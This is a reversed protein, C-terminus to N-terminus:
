IHLLIDYHESNQSFITWLIDKFLDFKRFSQVGSMLIGVFDSCTCSSPYFQDDKLITLVKIFSKTCCWMCFLSIACHVVIKHLTHQCIPTLRWVILLQPLFPVQTVNSAIFRSDSSYASVHNNISIHYVLDPTYRIELSIVM